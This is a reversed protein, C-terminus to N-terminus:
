GIHLVLGLILGIIAGIIGSWIWDPLKKQWRSAEALQDRLSEVIETQKAIVQAFESFRKSLSVPTLPEAQILFLIEEPTIPRVTSGVRMLASGQAFVPGSTTPEVDVAIVTNGQYPIAYVVTRPLPALCRQAEEVADQVRELDAGVVSGDDRVGFLVTGGRTNSFAALHRAIIDPPPITLKFEVSENEGKVIATRLDSENRIRYVM